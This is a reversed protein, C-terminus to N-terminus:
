TNKISKEIGLVLMTGITAQWIAFTPLYFSDLIIPLGIVGGMIAIFKISNSSIPHILHKVAKALIGAGIMGTIIPLPVLFMGASLITLFWTLGYAFTSFAVFGLINVLNKQYRKYFLTGFVCGFLLGPVLVLFFSFDPNENVIEAQGYSSILGSILGFVIPTLISNKM